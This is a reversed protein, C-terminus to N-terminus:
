GPVRIQIEFDLSRPKEHSTARLLEIVVNTVERAAFALVEPKAPGVMEVRVILGERGRELVRGIGNPTVALTSLAKMLEAVDAHDKAKGVVVVSDARQRVSTKTIGGPVLKPMASAVATRLSSVDPRTPAAAPLFLVLLLAPM